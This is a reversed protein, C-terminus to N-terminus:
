KDTIRKFDVEYPSSGSVISYCINNDAIYLDKTQKDSGNSFIIYKYKETDVTYKYVSNGAENTSALQCKEGPWSKYESSGWCYAYVSSWNESNEFYVTLESGECDVNNVDVIALLKNELSILDKIAREEDIVGAVYLAKASFYEKKLAQYCDYSSYRYYVDLNEKVSNLASLMTADEIDIVDNEFSTIMKVILKQIATVDNIDISGDFNVDAVAKQEDSLYKIDCIDMQIRTADNISIKNNEDVDGLLKEPEVSVTESSSETEATEDPNQSYFFIKLKNNSTDFDFQYYGGTATLKCNGASTSMVWGGRSTATTTNAVTGENGYWVSGKNLKFEYSGASLQITTTYITDNSTSYLPNQTTWSNFSGKLYIDSAEYVETETTAQTTATTAQTESMQQYKEQSTNVLYCCNPDYENHYLNTGNFIIADDYVDVIYAETEDIGYNRELSDNVIERVGGVSSNHLMQGSTDNNDSYNMQYEFGIHTHGSIFITDKYTELLTKFRNNAPYDASLPIDYYPVDDVRDGAGYQYFLSHEIIYINKGDGSYKKLLSELWNLQETSFEDVRDPYFGGELSMFIFHDGFLEKEFYAKEATNNSGDLGTAEIFAKTGITVDQYIEHNGIAEYVPGTYDSEALIKLYKKWEGAYIGEISDKNQIADGSTIIFDANRDAAVDLAMAWHEDAYQYTEYSLDIHVDSASMFSYKKDSNSYNWKKNEPLEYVATADSLARNEPETESCVAIVYKAEAPIATQEPMIHSSSGNNLELKAIESYGSLASNDDAWYLWYTGGNASLTIEGQAYGRDDSHEGSFVYSLSTTEASFITASFTTSTLILLIVLCFSIIKKFNLNM